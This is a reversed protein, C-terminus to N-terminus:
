NKVMHLWMKVCVQLTYPSEATLQAFIDSGISHLKPHQTPHTWSVHIVLAASAGRFPCKTPTLGISFCLIPNQPNSLVNLQEFVPQSIYVDRSKKRSSNAKLPRSSQV